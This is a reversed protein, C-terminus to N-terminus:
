VVKKIAVGLRDYYNMGLNHNRNFWPFLVFTDTGITVEEGASHVDMLTFYADPMYGAPVKDKDLFLTPILIPIPANPHSRLYQIDFYLPYTTGSLHFMSYMSAVTTSSYNIRQWTNDKYRVWGNGYNQIRGLPHSRYSSTTSNYAVNTNTYDGMNWSGAVFYGYPYNGAPSFKGFYLHQFWDGIGCVIYLHQSGAFFWYNFQSTKPISIFAVHTTNQETRPSQPQNIADKTSDYALSIQAKFRDYAYNLDTEYTCYVPTIGDNFSVCLLREGGTGTNDISFAINWDTLPTLFAELKDLLDKQGNALGTEFAM